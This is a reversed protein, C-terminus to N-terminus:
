GAAVWCGGETNSSSSCALNVLVHVNHSTRVNNSLDTPTVRVLSPMVPCYMHRTHARCERNIDPPKSDPILNVKAGKFIGRAEVRKSNQRANFRISLRFPAHGRHAVEGCIFQSCHM